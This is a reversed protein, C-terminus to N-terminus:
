TASIQSVCHSTDYLIIAFLGQFVFKFVWIECLFRAVGERWVVVYTANHTGSPRFDTAVSSAGGLACYHLKRSVRTLAVYINKYM